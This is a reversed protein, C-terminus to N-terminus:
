GRTSGLEFLVQGWALPDNLRLTALRGKFDLDANGVIAALGVVSLFNDTEADGAGVSHELDIALWEAIQETGHRKDVGDHTVFRARETHQYAM